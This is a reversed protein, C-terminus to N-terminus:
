FEDADVIANLIKYTLADASNKATRRRQFM